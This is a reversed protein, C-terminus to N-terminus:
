DYFDVHDGSKYNGDKLLKILKECSKDIPVLKHSNKLDIFYKKVSENYHNLCIDHMMDTDLPGPAYNLVHVFVHKDIVDGKEFTQENEQAFVKFYLERAAKGACYLSFGQMPTTSMLSSINVVFVQLMPNTNPHICKYNNITKMLLSHFLITSTMNTRFYSELLQDDQESLFQDAKKSVSGLTAANYIILFQEIHLNSKSMITSIEGIKDVIYSYPQDLDFKIFNIMNEKIQSANPELILSSKVDKSLKDVDRGTLIFINSKYKLIPYIHDFISKGLGRTAGLILILSPLEFNFKQVM